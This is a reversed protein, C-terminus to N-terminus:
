MDVVVIQTCCGWSRSRCQNDSLALISEHLIVFALM